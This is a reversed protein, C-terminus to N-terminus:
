GENVRILIGDPMYDEDPQSYRLRSWEKLSELERSFTRRNENVAVILDLAEKCFGVKFGLQNTIPSVSQQQAQYLAYAVAYYRRWMLRNTTLHDPEGGDSPPDEWAFKLQKASNRYLQTGISLDCPTGDVHINQSAQDKAKKMLAASYGGVKGKAEFVSWRGTRSSLGLLDPTSGGAQKTIAHNKTMWHYHILWPTQLLDQAAIKAFIMGLYFNVGGKETPDLANFLDTNQFHSTPGGITLAARVMNWRYLAEYVSYTGFAKTAVKSPRGITIAAWCLKASSVNM